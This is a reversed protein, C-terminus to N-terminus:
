SAAGIAAAIPGPRDSILSAVGWGMLRRARAAQNVTYAVVPAGVTAIERMLRRSLRRHAFHVTRCGLRQFRTEWRAMDDGVLLGRPADPLAEAAARLATDSFSSVLPLARAAPWCEAVVRMAATATESQRGEVAKIEINAGLDLAICTALAAALDPVREGAFARGFWAGADLAAVAALTKAALPGRGDTTRDVREDHFLVCHGDATLRVDFEVWRVGAAAAARLSALTNEPAM